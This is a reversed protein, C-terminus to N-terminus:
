LVGCERAKEELVVLEAEYDIKVLASADRIRQEFVEVSWRRALFCGWAEPHHTMFVHGAACGPIGNWLKLRAAPHPGKAIAHMGQLPGSCTHLERGLLMGIFVCPGSARVIRGWLDLCKAKARKQRVKKTPLRKKPKKGRKEPKPFALAM